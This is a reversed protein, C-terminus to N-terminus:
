GSKGLREKLAEAKGRIENGIESNLLDELIAQAETERNVKMLDEVMNLKAEPVYKSEPFENILVKYYVVAAEYEDIKEYFRANSFEKKALKEIAQSYYVKASDAFPSQPYSIVFRRLERIAEKTTAQDREFSKSDLLSCQGIRFRAEEAFPSNPYDRVIQQFEVKAEDPNKTLMQAKALYYIVSDMVNHGHCNLRIDDCINKVDGYKGKEFKKKVKEFRESCNYAEKIKKAEAGGWPIMIFIGLLLLFFPNTNKQMFKYMDSYRNHM